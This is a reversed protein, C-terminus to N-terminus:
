IFSNIVHCKINPGSTTMIQLFMFANCILRKIAFMFYEITSIFNVIAFTLFFIFYSLKEIIPPFYIHTRLKLPIPTGSRLVGM